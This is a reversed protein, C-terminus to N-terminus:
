EGRMFLDFIITREEKRRCYQVVDAQGSSVLGAKALSADGQATSLTDAIIQSLIPMRGFDPLLYPIGDGEMQIRPHRFPSMPGFGM